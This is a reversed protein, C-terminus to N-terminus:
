LDERQRSRDLHRSGAGSGGRDSRLVTSRPSSPSTWTSWAWSWQPARACSTSSRPTRFCAIARRKLDAGACFARGHGTVVVCKTLRDAQVKPWLATLKTHSTYSTANLSQPRHLTVVLVGDDTRDIIWDGDDYEEYGEIVSTVTEAM